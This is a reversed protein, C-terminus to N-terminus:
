TPKFYEKSQGDKPKNGWRCFLLIPSPSICDNSSIMLLGALQGWLQVRAIPNRVREETRPIYARGVTGVDPAAELFCGESLLIVSVMQEYLLSFEPLAETYVRLSRAPPHLSRSTKCNDWVPRTLFNRQKKFSGGVLPSHDAEKKSKEKGESYPLWNWIEGLSNELNLAKLNFDRRYTM